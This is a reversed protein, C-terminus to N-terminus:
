KSSIGADSDLQGSAIPEGRAAPNKPLFYHCSEMHHTDFDEIGLAQLRQTRFSPNTGFKGCFIAAITPYDRLSAQLDNWEPSGVAYGEHRFMVARQRLAFPLNPDWDQGWIWIVGQRHYPWDAFLTSMKAPANEAWAIQNGYGHAYRQQMQKVAVALLLLALLTTALRKEELLGFIVFSAGTILFIGIAFVYYDHVLYVNFFVLLAVLALLINLLAWGLNRRLYLGVVFIGAFAETKGFVTSFTRHRLLVWNDHNLRQAWDGFVWNHLQDDLLFDAALDTKGRYSDALESWLLAAIAPVIGLWVGCHLGRAWGKWGDVSHWRAIVYYSIAFAVTVAFPFLTTVKTMAAVCGLTSTALLWGFHPRKLCRLSLALYGLALCLATSEILVANAFGLYLPSFLLLGMMFLQHTRPIQLHDFIKAIPWFCLAFMLLSVMRCATLLDLGTLKHWGAALLQYTPFEFPLQWPPGFVPIEYLFWPGGQAITFVSFATQAQRFNHPAGFLSRDMDPWVCTLAYVLAYGLFTISAITTLYRNPISSQNWVWQVLKKTM